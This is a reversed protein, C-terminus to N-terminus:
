PVHQFISATLGIGSLSKQLSLITHDVNASPMVATIACCMKTVPAFIFQKRRCFRACTLAIGREDLTGTFKTGIQSDTKSSISKARTM